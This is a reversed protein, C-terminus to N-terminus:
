IRNNYFRLKADTRRVSALNGHMTELVWVSEYIFEDSLYPELFDVNKENWTKCVIEALEFDSKRM